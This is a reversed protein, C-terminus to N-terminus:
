PECRRKYCLRFVRARVKSFVANPNVVVSIVCFVFVCKVM